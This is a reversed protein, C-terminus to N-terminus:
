TIQKIAKCLALASKKRAEEESNVDVWGYYDTSGGADSVTIDCEVRGPYYRFVIRVINGKPVLWEICHDVSLDFRPLVDRSVGTHVKCNMHSKCPEQWDAVRKGSEYHYHERINARKFGRWKALKESLKEDAM